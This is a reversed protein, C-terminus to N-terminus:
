NAFRRLKPLNPSCSVQRATEERLGELQAELQTIEHLREEALKEYEDCKEQAKELDNILCNNLENLEKLQEEMELVKCKMRCVAEAGVASESKVDDIQGVMAAVKDQLFM